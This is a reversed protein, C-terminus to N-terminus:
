PVEGWEVGNFKQLAMTIFDTRRIARLTIRLTHAASGILDFPVFEM